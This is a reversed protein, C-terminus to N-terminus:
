YLEMMQEGGHAPNGILRQGVPDVIWDLQELPVQGILVPCDDPLELVDCTCDRGQVTLRAAGYAQVTTSGATTRVRRSKLPMLGLQVILRKPMSLTSAGTEVLADSVEVSRVDNATRAGKSVEFLDLINEIKALVVVRGMQATEM